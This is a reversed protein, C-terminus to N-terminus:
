GGAELERTLVAVEGALGTVDVGHELARRPGTAAAMADAAQYARRRLRGVVNERGILAPGAVGRDGPIRGDVEVVGLRAAAARGAVVARHRLALPRRVDDGVEFAVGAMRREAPRPRHEGVHAHGAAAGGTVVAHVGVAERGVVERDAAAAGRYRALGAVRRGLERGPRERGHAMGRRHREAARAAVLGGVEDAHVRAGIGRGPVRPGRRLEIRQVRRRAIATLTVIRRSEGLAGRAGGVVNRGARRAELAVRCGAVVREVRDGGSVLAHGPAEGAVARAGSGEGARRGAVRDRDDP